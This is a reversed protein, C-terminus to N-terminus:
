AGIKIYQTGRPMRIIPELGDHARCSNYDQLAEAQYTQGYSGSVTTKYSGQEKTPPVKVEYKM